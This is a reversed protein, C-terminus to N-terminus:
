DLHKTCNLYVLKIKKKDKIEFINVSTNDGRELESMYMYTKGLLVALLAKNMGGHAMILINDKEKHKSILKDLFNKARNFLEVKKEITPDLDEIDAVDKVSFAEKGKGQLLGLYRERIEKSFKIPVKHFKAIETTTDKARQLDSSYIYDIKEDKLRLALKKAQEIGKESLHGPLHGQMIGGCNEITEGHRTIIIKM